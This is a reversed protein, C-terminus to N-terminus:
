ITGHRGARDIRNLVQCGVIEVVVRDAVAHGAFANVHQLTTVGATGAGASRPELERVLVGSVLGTAVRGLGDVVLATGDSHSVGAWVSVTRLEEQVVAVGRQSRM